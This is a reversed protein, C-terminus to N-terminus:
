PTLLLHTIKSREITLLVEEPDFEPLIVITGGMYQFRLLRGTGAMFPLPTCSLYVDNRSLGLELAASVSAAVLNGHSLMAGRPTGSTGGTYVLIAIDSDTLPAADGPPADPIAETGPLGGTGALPGDLVSFRAHSPLEARLRGAVERYAESFFVAKADAHRLIAALERAILQENLPLLVGGVQTVAYLLEMYSPSNRTLVAVRDGKGIGISRLAAARLAVRAALERYPISEGGLILAIRDPYIRANRALIDRIM